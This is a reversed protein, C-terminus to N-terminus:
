SAVAERQAARWGIPHGIHWCHGGRVCHYAYIPEGTAKSEHVARAKALKRSSYALKGCRCRGMRTVKTRRVKGGELVVARPRV